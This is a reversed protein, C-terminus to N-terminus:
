GNEEEKLITEHYDIQCLIMYGEKGAYSIDSKREDIIYGKDELERMTKEVRDELLTAKTSVLFLTHPIVKYRM